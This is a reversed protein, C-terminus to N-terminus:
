PITSRNLTFGSRLAYRGRSRPARRLVLRVMDTAGTGDRHFLPDVIVREIRNARFFGAVVTNEDALTLMTFGHPKDLGREQGPPALVFIGGKGVDCSQAIRGKHASIPPIAM